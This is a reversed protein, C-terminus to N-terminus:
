LHENICRLNAMRTGAASKHPKAPEAHGATAWYPEPGSVAGVFQLMVDVVRGHYGAPVISTCISPWSMPFKWNPGPPFVPRLQCAGSQVAPGWLKSNVALKVVPADVDHEPDKVTPVFV